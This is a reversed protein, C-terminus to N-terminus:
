RGGYLKSLRELEDTALGELSRLTTGGEELVLICRVESGTEVGRRVLKYDPHVARWLYDMREQRSWAAGPAHAIIAPRYDRCAARDDTTPEGAHASCSPTCLYEHRLSSCTRCTFTKV